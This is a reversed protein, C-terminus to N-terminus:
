LLEELAFSWAWPAEQVVHNTLSGLETFSGFMTRRMRLVNAEDPDLVFLVGRSRGVYNKLAYLDGLAEDQTLYGLPGAARRRKPKQQAYFGAGVARDIRSDDVIGVSVGFGINIAPVFPVGALFCGFEWYGDASAEDSGDILIYRGSVASGHLYFSTFGGPFDEDTGTWPFQGWALMGWEVTSVDITLTEDLSPSSGDSNNSVRIRITSGQSFNHNVFAFMQLSTASGLDLRFKTSAEDADTTRAVRGPQSNLLNTLPYASEWSGLALTGASSIRGSLLHMNAM